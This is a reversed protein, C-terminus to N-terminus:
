VREWIPPIRKKGADGLVVPSIGSIECAYVLADVVDGAVGQAHNCPFTALFEEFDCALKAHVHPWTPDTQENLKKREEAPLEVSEGKTIVMFPKDDWVGLRCFTMEGPKADFEVSAGGAKFYFELAPHFTIKDFNDKPDDSQAAYWSAHNGSNCWDWLDREPHYLRVDMFLAPMGGTIYKLLQMTVAAYSDAETACVTPEKPGNWDYPDNMLMEPVDGLCVYETLERQGKLGCYDFGKDENVAKMACYLRIQTKLTDPTLMKGDYKIRDGLLQTFWEFGKEVEADPVDKMAELLWLQDIQRLTTGLAKITPVMHFYGTEMGMSHGGYCGYVESKITTVAQSARIWATVKALTAEDDMDGVIRHTKVGAQRLAGDTALLGVNGPYKGNNNSLSLIPKDVGVSQIFPWVLFPYNWVNYLMIVQRCGARHLEDGVKQASRVDTIIQSGTVIEPASGDRNTLRSKIIEAWQGVVKENVPNNQEWVHQREDNLM